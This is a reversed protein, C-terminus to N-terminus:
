VITVKKQQILKTIAKLIIFLAAIELPLMLLNKFIRSFIEVIGVAKGYLIFIWFTNLLLNLLLNVAAKAIIVRPGSVKCSYFAIGYVIGGLFATLTFGFFYAGMSNGPTLLYSLIDGLAAGMGAAVPGYLMGMIAIALFSISIKMTSGIPITAFSLAVNLAVLMAIGTLSRLKKLEAASQTFLSLFKKMATGGQM